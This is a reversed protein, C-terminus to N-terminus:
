TSSVSTKLSNRLTKKQYETPTLDTDKKFAKNFTVKNNYGVEYAIDIINLNKLYDTDLIQKAEHIRYSNILEHFNMKFHENIVQSTNHRTTNLREALIELSIDNEKYVKHEDFLKVLNSKLEESLSETLGSNKYKFFLQDNLAYLGNFVNPQVNASYGVYLVMLTMSIIQLNLLIGSNINYNVFFFYFAYTFIYMFHIRYINKQWLKNNKSLEKTKSSELYLKRIFYGYGILSILKTSSIILLNYNGYAEEVAVNGLIVDLKDPASLAYVPLLYTLLLVTPVLHLLDKPKFQYQRTIRKYYFYLLPGFLLAFPSSMLHTHPFQFQYNTAFFFWHLIFISHVLIFGSILVRALKDINKNLNLVITIYFGILAIYLLIFSWVNINTTYKEELTAFEDTHKISDFGENLFLATNFEEFLYKELFVVSKETNELGAYGLAIKKYLQSKEIKGEELLQLYIKLAESYNQKQYLEDARTLLDQTIDYFHPLRSEAVSPYSLASTPFSLLLFLGFVIRLRRM